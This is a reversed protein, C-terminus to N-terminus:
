ISVIQIQARGLWNTCSITVQSRGNSCAAKSGVEVKNQEQNWIKGYTYIKTGQPWLGDVM